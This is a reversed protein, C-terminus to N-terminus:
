TDDWSSGWDWKKQLTAVAIFAILAFLGMLAAGLRVLDFGQAQNEQQFDISKLIKRDFESLFYTKLFQPKEM